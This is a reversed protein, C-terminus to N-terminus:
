HAAHYTDGTDDRKWYGKAVIREPAVGWRECALARATKVIAQEAAVFVFPDEGPRDEATLRDLAAALATGPFADGRHVYTVEAATEVPVEHTADPVEVLIRAPAGDPILAAYRRIQAVATEDGALLWGTPSGDIRLTGRPGGIGVISGIQATDAWVGAVGEDGHLAFELDLFPTGDPDEGWAVPTFERSPAARMEDVTDVRGDPFFIRIHDDHGEAGFGRLEDGVLRVKAYGPTIRERAALTVFRVVLDLPERVLSFPSTSATM